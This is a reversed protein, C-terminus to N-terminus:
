TRIKVSATRRGLLLDRHRLLMMRVHARLHPRRAEGWLYAINELAFQREAEYEVPSLTEYNM